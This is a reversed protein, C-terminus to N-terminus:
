KSLVFLTAVSAQFPACNPAVTNSCGSSTLRPMGTFSHSHMGPEVGSSNIKRGAAGHTGQSLIPMSLASKIKFGEEPLLDEAAYKMDHQQGEAQQGASALAVQMPLAQLKRSAQVARHLDAQDRLM